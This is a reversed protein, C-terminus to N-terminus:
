VLHLIFNPNWSIASFKLGRVYISMQGFSWFAGLVVVVICVRAPAFCDLNKRTCRVSGADERSQKAEVCAERHRWADESGGDGGTKTPFWCFGLRRALHGAYGSCLTRSASAHGRRTRPGHRRWTSPSREQAAGKGQARSRRSKALVTKAGVRRWASKSKKYVTNVVKSRAHNMPALGSREGKVARPGDARVHKGKVARRM